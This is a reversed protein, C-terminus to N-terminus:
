TTYLELRISDDDRLVVVAGSQPTWRDPVLFLKDGSALLLRFGRYRYRYDGGTLTFTQIGPFRIALDSRTDLVVAPLTDLRNSLRVAEARGYAAAFSNM